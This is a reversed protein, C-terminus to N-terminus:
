DVCLKGTLVLAADVKVEINQGAEMPVFACSDRSEKDFRGTGGHVPFRAIEVDDVTVVAISNDPVRLNRLVIKLREGFDDYTKRELKGNPKSFRGGTRSELKSELEHKVIRVTM